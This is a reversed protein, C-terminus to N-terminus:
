EDGLRRQEAMMFGTAIRRWFAAVPDPPEASAPIVPAVLHEFHLHTGTSIGTNGIIGITRGAPVWEGEYTLIESLHGYRTFSSDDHEILVMQGYIPHGPHYVGDRWGQFWTQRVIGAAAARVRTGPPATDDRGGHFTYRAGGMVGRRLGFGSSEEYVELPSILDLPSLIAGIFIGYILLMIILLTRM